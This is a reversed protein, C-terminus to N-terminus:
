IAGTERVATVLFALGIGLFLIAFFRNSAREPV